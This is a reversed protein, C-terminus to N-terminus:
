TSAWPSSGEPARPRPTGTRAAHRAEAAAVARELADHRGAGDSDALLDVCPPRDRATDRLELLVPYLSPPPHDPVGGGVGPWWARWGVADNRYAALMAQIFGYTRADTDRPEVLDMGPLESILASAIAHDWPTLACRGDGRTGAIAREIRRLHGRLGSM